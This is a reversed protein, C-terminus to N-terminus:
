LEGAATKGAAPPWGPVMSRKHISHRLAQKPPRRKRRAAPSFFPYRSVEPRRYSSTPTRSPHIARPSRRHEAAECEGARGAERGGSALGSGNIAPLLAGAIMIRFCADEAHLRFSFHIGCPTRGAPHRRPHELPLDHGKTAPIISTHTHPIPTHGEAAPMVFTHPPLRHGAQPPAPGNSGNGKAGIEGAM